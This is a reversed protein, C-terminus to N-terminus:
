EQAKVVLSWNKRVFETIHQTSLVEAVELSPIQPHKTSSAPGLVASNLERCTGGIHSSNKAENIGTTADESPSYGLATVAPAPSEM